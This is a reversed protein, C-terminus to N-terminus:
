TARLLGRVLDLDGPKDVDVAALGYPCEILRARCGAVTGIRAVADASALRGSLYRMLLGPGLRMAIRWPRKRDQEVTQWFAVANMAKPKALYFLNCGSWDGDAFRLYTRRTDPVANEITERRALLGAIDSSPPVDRVFHRVWDPQLLAHDATTVLLPAGMRRFADAVSASPGASAQMVEIGLAEAHAVVAPSSVSAVIRRAGAMRLATVVRSLMTRGEIVILAKEEVGAYRAVPDVGGRSGALVLADFTM